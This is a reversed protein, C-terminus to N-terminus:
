KRKKSKKKDIIEVHSLIENPLHHWMIQVDHYNDLMLADGNTCVIKYDHKDYLKNSTQTFSEM